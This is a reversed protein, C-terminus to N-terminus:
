PLAGVWDDVASTNGDLNTIEIKQFMMSIKELPRADHVDEDDHAVLQEIATVAVNTLRITHFVQPKGMESTIMFEFLVSTLVDNSVLASFFQPSSAGWQKVFSVPHHVRKGTAMGSAADRPSDVSYEFAIGTVRGPVKGKGGGTEERFKGTKKSEVTVYFEYAM